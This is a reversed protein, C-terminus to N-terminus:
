HGYIDFWNINETRVGCITGTRSTAFKRMFKLNPNFFMPCSLPCKFEWIDSIWSLTCTSWNLCRYCCSNKDVRYFDQPYGWKSQFHNKKNQNLKTVIDIKGKM